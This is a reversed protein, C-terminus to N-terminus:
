EMYSVTCVMSCVGTDQLVMMIDWVATSAAAAALQAWKM